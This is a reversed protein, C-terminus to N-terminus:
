EDDSKIPTRKRTAPQSKAKSQMRISEEPTLQRVAKAPGAERVVHTPADAPESEIHYESQAITVPLNEPSGFEDIPNVIICDGGTGAWEGLQTNRIPSQGVVQLRDFKDGKPEDRKLITGEIYSM